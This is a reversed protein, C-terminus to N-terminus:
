RRRPGSCSRTGIRPRERRGARHSPRRPLVASGLRPIKRHRRRGSRGQRCRSRRRQQCLAHAAHDPSQHDRGAGGVGSRDGGCHDRNPVVVIKGSPTKIPKGDLTVTLGGETEGVGVATYFRKRRPTRTHASSWSAPILRRSAQSKMSCNVCPTKPSHSSRHYHQCSLVIDVSAFLASSAQRSRPRAPATAAGASRGGRGPESRRFRQDAVDIGM